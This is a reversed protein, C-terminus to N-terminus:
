MKKEKSTKETSKQTGVLTEVAAQQGKTKSASKHSGYACGAGGGGAFVPGAAFALIIGGTVLAGAIKGNVRM